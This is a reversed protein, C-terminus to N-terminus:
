GNSRFKKFLFGAAVAAVALVGVMGFSSQSQQQAPAIQPEVPVAVSVVQMEDSSPTASTTTAATSQPNDATQVNRRSALCVLPRSRSLSPAKTAAQQLRAQMQAQQQLQQLMETETKAAGWGM